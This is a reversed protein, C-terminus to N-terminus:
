PAFSNTFIIKRFSRCLFSNVAIHKLTSDCAICADIFVLELDRHYIHLYFYLFSNLSVENGGEVPLLREPSQLGIAITLYYRSYRHGRDRRLKERCLLRFLIYNAIAWTVRNAPTLVHRQHGQDEFGFAAVLQPNSAMTEHLIM